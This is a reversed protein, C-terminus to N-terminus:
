GIEIPKCKLDVGGDVGNQEDLEVGPTSDPQQKSLCRNPSNVEISGYM